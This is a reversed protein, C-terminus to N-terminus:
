IMLYRCIYYSFTYRRNLKEVYCLHGALIQNRRSTYYTGEVIKESIDLAQLSNGFHARCQQAVTSHAYSSFSILPCIELESSKKQFTYYTDGCIKASIDFTQLSNGFHASLTIHSVLTGVLRVQCFLMFFFVPLFTNLQKNVTFFESNCKM